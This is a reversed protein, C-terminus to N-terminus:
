QAGHAWDVGSRSAALARRVSALSDEIARREDQRLVRDVKAGVLAGLGVAVGLHDLLQALVARAVLVKAERRLGVAPIPKFM